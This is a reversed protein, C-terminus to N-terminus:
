RVKVLKSDNYNKKLHGNKKKLFIETLTTTTKSKNGRRENNYRSCSHRIETPRSGDRRVSNLMANPINTNQGKTIWTDKCSNVNEHFTNHDERKLRYHMFASKYVFSFILSYIYSMKFSFKFQLTETERGGEQKKSCANINPRM